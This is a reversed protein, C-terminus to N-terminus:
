TRRYAEIRAVDDPGLRRGDIAQSSLHAVAEDITIIAQVPVAFERAIEQAASDQGQGREQRDVSVVVGVVRIPLGALKTLSERVATGATLVDDVIVVSAGDALPAGVFGGGDGHDKVEKRDFCWHVPRGLQQAYAQSAALALPIGKYAPGFVIDVADGAVAQIAPAYCAGIVALDDASHFCGTNIFYPSRRGSKLTFDGFRLAERRVLLELFRIQHPHLTSMPRLM